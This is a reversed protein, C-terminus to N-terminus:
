FITNRWIFNLDWLQGSRKESTIQNVWDSAEEKVTGLHFSFCAVESRLQGSALSHFLSICGQKWLVLWVTEATTKFRLLQKSFSLKFLQRGSDSSRGM